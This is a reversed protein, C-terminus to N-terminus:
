NEIIILHITLAKKLLMQTCPMSINAKHLVSETLEIKLSCLGDFQEFLLNM